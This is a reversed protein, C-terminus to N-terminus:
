SCYLIIDSDKPIRHAYRAMAEMPVSVSMPVKEPLRRIDSSHRVDIIHTDDGSKLMEYVEKPALRRMELSKLFTRRQYFKFAFYAFVITVLAVGAWFGIDALQMAIAELQNAFMMGLGIFLGAWAAAGITDLALFKTVPMGTLGSMPPALTQLGPVFKAVILSLPGLKDFTAATNRVCYDPELSITCLLNLVKGGQAKGFFYWFLDIPVSALLCIMFLPLLELHGIGVLAGAALLLPVAPLPLGAQDLVVWVFVVTYGHSILFNMFEAM